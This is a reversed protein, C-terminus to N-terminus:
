ASEKMDSFYKPNFCGVLVRDEQQGNNLYHGKLRGEIEWGAKSYARISGINSAYMGGFLKRIDYAEFAVSGALRIADTALGKGLFARDGILAVLDSIRNKWDIPGIKVTGIRLDTDRTHIGYLFYSKSGLGDAIHREIDARTFLRGSGTYFQMSDTDQHWALMRDDVNEPKLLEIFLRESFFPGTVPEIM